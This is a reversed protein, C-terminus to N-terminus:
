DKQSTRPFPGFHVWYLLELIRLETMEAQMQRSLEQLDQLKSMHERGVIRLKDMCAIIRDVKNGSDVSLANQVVSDCIPILRPRKRHLAKTLTAVGIGPHSLLVSLIQRIVEKRSQWEIDNMNLLDWDGIRAISNDTATIQAWTKASIRAAIKNALRRDEDTIRDLHSPTVGDYVGFKKFRELYYALDGEAYEWYIEKAQVSSYPSNSSTKRKIQVPGLKNRRLDEACERCHGSKRRAYAEFEKGCIECTLSILRKAV